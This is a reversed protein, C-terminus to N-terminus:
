KGQKMTKDYARKLDAYDARLKNLKRTAISATAMAKAERATSIQYKASVAEAKEKVAEDRQRFAEEKAQKEKRFDIIAQVWAIASAAPDTFQPLGNAFFFANNLEEATKQAKLVDLMQKALRSIEGGSQQVKEMAKRFEEFAEAKAATQGWNFGFDARLKFIANMAEKENENFKCNADLARALETASQNLDIPKRYEIEPSPAPDQKINYSGTKRISPLVENCLWQRFKRCDESRGRMMVFYLQPETIFTYQKVGYGTDFSERFLTNVGFEKKIQATTDSIHRPDNNMAKCVEVLCFLPEGERTMVHLPYGEYDYTALSKITQNKTNETMIDEEPKTRNDTNRDTM